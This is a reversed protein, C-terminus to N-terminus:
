ICIYKHTCVEYIDMGTYTYPPHPSGKSNIASHSETSYNEWPTVELALAGGAKLMDMRLILSNATPSQHAHMM